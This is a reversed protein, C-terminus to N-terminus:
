GAVIEDFVPEGRIADLDSDSRAYDRFMESLEIATRLHDLPRGGVAVLVTRPEEAFATRNIRPRV